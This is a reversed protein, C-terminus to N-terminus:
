EAIAKVCAVAGACDPSLDQWTSGDASIFSRGPQAVASDSYGPELEQVPIPYPYGPTTLKLRVAFTSGRPVQVPHELPVVHYGPASLTGSQPPLGASALAATGSAPNSDTIGTLLDVEYLSDAAGTYFAVASIRDDGQARFLNACYASDGGLGRSNVWGLPDYQYIHRSVRTGGRFVTGDFVKSDYSLYFYGAQGWFRSWSNRVIWAGPTAPRNDAPFRCPAFSDDWGVICVEHNLGDPSGSANRFTNGEADFYADEWDLTIVAPGFHTLAYKLDDSSTPVSSNFLYLAEELPVSLQERGNPLDGAPRPQPRYSGRQYPCDRERVAGTGRALLATAMWDNGGQDFVPDELDSV